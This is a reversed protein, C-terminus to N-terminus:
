PTTYYSVTMVILPFRVMDAEADSSLATDFQARIQYRSTGVKSQLTTVFDHDAVASGLDGTSCLRIMAGSPSGSFFDGADLSGYDQKYLSLCGLDAFPNGLTDYGTFNFRVDTITSGAPIGSIDFSFFGQSSQNDSTDGVNRPSLVGGGSRVSGSEGSLATLTVTTIAPVVDIAVWFAQDGAPGIGFLVGSPNRLRWYGKYSGPTTPATLQLQVDLTQGPAVSGSTLSYTAAAGMADGHDFVLMYGSTWTCSGNNRLRWIKTFTTGPQVDTGDPYNVDTVFAARDCPIPTATATPTITPPLPTNTPPVPTDSPPVETTPSPAGPTQGQPTEGQPTLLADVTQRAFTANLDVTPSAQPMNCSALVIGAIALVTPLLSRRFPTKMM